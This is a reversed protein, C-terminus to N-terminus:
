KAEEPYPGAMVTRIFASYFLNLRHKSAILDKSLGEYKIFGDEDEQGACQKM